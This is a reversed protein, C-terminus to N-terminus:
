SLLLVQIEHNGGHYGHLKSLIESRVMSNCICICLCCCQDNVQMSLLGECVPLEFM